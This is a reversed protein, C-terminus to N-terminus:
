DQVQARFPIRMPLVYREADIHHPLVQPTATILVLVGSATLSTGKRFGAKILAARGAAAGSGAGPPYCLDVQLFGREAHRGGIEADDPMAMILTARQYPTGPSPEFGRNEWATALAPTMAGLATELAGRIAILSM